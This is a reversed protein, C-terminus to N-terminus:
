RGVRTQPPPPPTPPPPGCIVGSPGPAARQGFLMGSDLKPPPSNSPAFLLGSDVYPPVRNALRYRITLPKPRIAPPALRSM